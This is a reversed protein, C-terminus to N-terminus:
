EADLPPQPLPGHLEAELADLKAQLNEFVIDVGLDTSSAPKENEPILSIADLDVKTAVPKTYDRPRDAPYQWPLPQYWVGLGLKLPKTLPAKYERLDDVQRLDEAFLAAPNLFLLAALLVNAKMPLPPNRLSLM